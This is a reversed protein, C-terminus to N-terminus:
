FPPPAHRILAATAARKAAALTSAAGRELPHATFPPVASGYVRWPYVIPEAGGSRRVYSRIPHRYVHAGYAGCRQYHEGDVRRWPAPTDSM